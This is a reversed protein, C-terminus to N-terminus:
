QPSMSRPAFKVHFNETTIPKKKKSEEKEYKNGQAKLMKLDRNSTEFNERLTKNEKNIDHLEKEKIKNIKKLAKLDSEQSLTEVM